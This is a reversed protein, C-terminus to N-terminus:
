LRSGNILIRVITTVPRETTPIGIALRHGFVADRERAGPSKSLVALVGNFIYVLGALLKGIGLSDGAVLDAVDNLLISDLMGLDLAIGVALRSRILQGDALVLRLVNDADNVLLLSTLGTIVQHQIASRPGRRVLGSLSRTGLLPVVVVTERLVVGERHSITLGRSRVTGEDAPHVLLAVVLSGRNALGAVLNSIYITVILRVGEIGQPRAERSRALVYRVVALRMGNRYVDIDVLTGTQIRLVNRLGLLEDRSAVNLIRGVAALGPARVLRAERIGAGVGNLHALVHGNAFLGGLEGGLGGNVNGLAGDRKLGGVQGLIVVATREGVAVGGELGLGAPDLVFACGVAKGTTLRINALGIVGEGIRQLVAGVSIVVDDRLGLALQGNVIALGLIRDRNFAVRRGHFVIAILM